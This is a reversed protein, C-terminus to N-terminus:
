LAFDKLVPLIHRGQPAEAIELLVNFLVVLYSLHMELHWERRHFLKKLSCVNTLFSFITEIIGRENWTRQQCLKLNEPM